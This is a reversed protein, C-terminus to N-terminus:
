YEAPVKGFRERIWRHFRHAGKGYFMMPCFGYVVEIGNRSCVEIANKSVAGRGVGRHMWVRRISTNLSQEIIEDTLSPPVVLILNEIGEPLEKVKAACPIGDIEECHPNVPYVEYNRASLEKMLFRGFNDRNNSAGAIAVQKTDLFAQITKKMTNSNPKLNENKM